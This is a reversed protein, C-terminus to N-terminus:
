TAVEKGATPEVYVLWWEQHRLMARGHKDYKGTEEYGSLFIGNAPMCELRVSEMDAVLRADVFATAHGHRSVDVTVLMPQKDPKPWQRYLNYKM